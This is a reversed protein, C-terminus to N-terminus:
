RGEDMRGNKGYPLLSAPRYLPRVPCAPVFPKLEAGAMGAIRAAASWVDFYVHCADGRLEGNDRRSTVISEARATAPAIRRDIPGPVFVPKV